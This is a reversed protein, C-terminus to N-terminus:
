KFCESHMIFTIIQNRIKNDTILTFSTTMMSCVCTNCNKFSDSRIFNLDSNSASTYFDSADWHMEVCKSHFIKAYMYM